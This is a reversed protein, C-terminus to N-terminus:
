HSIDVTPEQGPTTGNDAASRRPAAAPEAPTSVTPTPTAPGTTVNTTFVAILIAAALAAAALFGVTYSTAAVLPGALLPSIFQGAFMATGQLSTARGRLEPPANDAILVTLAPMALANGAGALAPALLLLVPQSALAYILFALLWAAAALRMIAAHGLRARLRAYVLGLLSAVVAGTTVAYIAVLFTSTIGVQELRKPLFVAPVYMMVGSALVLGYLGLLVPRTRMLQTLGGTGPTPHTTGAVNKPVALLVAIGLPIGIMYIAFAAHWSIGGLAGALLPWCVGGATTASTRWGMVRDRRPGQYLALLAVTTATFVVAAGLGLVFRSVLLAPYSTVVLGAGGGVGYLVLGGALPVRVGWRDIIRGVLPSAVAITLGHTTIIFGAATGSVHLDNQIVALVPAITAGAMVGLTSALLLTWLASARRDVLRGTM